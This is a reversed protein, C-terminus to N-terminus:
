DRKVPRGRRGQNGTALRAMLGRPCLKRKNFGHPVDALDAQVHDVLSCDRSRRVMPKEIDDFEPVLDLFDNLLNVVVECVECFAADHSLLQLEPVEVQM